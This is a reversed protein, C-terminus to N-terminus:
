GRVLHYGSGNLRKVLISMLRFSPSSHRKRNPLQPRWRVCHPRPRPRGGYWTAYQDMWGSPWLLGINCVSLCVPCIPYRDRPMPRITVQLPRRFNGLLGVCRSVSLSLSLSRPFSISEGHTSTLSPSASIATSYQCAGAPSTWWRVATRWTSIMYLRRGRPETSLSLLAGCSCATLTSM